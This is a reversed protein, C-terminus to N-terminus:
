VDEQANTLELTGYWVKWGTASANVYEGDAPQLRALFRAPTQSGDWLEVRVVEVEPVGNPFVAARLPYALTDAVPTIDEQFREPAFRGVEALGANVLEGIAAPDFTKGDPDRLASSARTRLELFTGM